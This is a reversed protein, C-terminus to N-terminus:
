NENFTTWIITKLISYIIAVRGFVTDNRYINYIVWVLYASSASFVKCNRM